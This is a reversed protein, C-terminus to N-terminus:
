RNSVPGFRNGSKYLEGRMWNLYGPSAYPFEVAVIQPQQYNHLRSITQQLEDFRDDFSKMVCLWEHANEIQGQWLYSSEVPGSIQVCAALRASLVQQAITQL